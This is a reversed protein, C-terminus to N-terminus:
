VARGKRKCDKDDGMLYGCWLDKKTGRSIDISNGSHRNAVDLININCGNNSSESVIQTFLRDLLEQFFRKSTSNTQRAEYQQAVQQPMHKDKTGLLLTEMNFVVQFFYFV